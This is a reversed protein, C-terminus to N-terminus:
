VGPAGYEERERIQTRDRRGRWIVAGTSSWRALADNRMLDAPSVEYLAGHREARRRRRRGARVRLSLRASTVVGPELKYTIAALLSRLGHDRRGGLAARCRRRLPIRATDADPHRRLCPLSAKPHRREAAM